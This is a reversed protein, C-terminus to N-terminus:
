KQVDHLCLLAVAAAHGGGGPAEDEQIEGDEEVESESRQDWGRDQRDTEWHRKGNNGILIYLQQRDNRATINHQRDAIHLFAYFVEWNITVGPSDYFWLFEIEQLRWILTNSYGTPKIDRLHLSSNLCKYNHIRFNNRYTIKFTMFELAM